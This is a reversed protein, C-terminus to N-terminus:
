DKKLEDLEAQLQEIRAQKNAEARAAKTQEKSQKRTQSKDILSKFIPLAFLSQALKYIFLSCILFLSVCYVIYYAIDFSTYYSVNKSIQITFMVTFTLFCLSLVSYFVIKFYKKM